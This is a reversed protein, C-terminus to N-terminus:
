EIITWADMNWLRSFTKPEFNEVNPQLAFMTNAVHLYLYPQEEFLIEQVRSYLEARVAQDCGPVTRAEELLQTLEENYYSTFNFGSGPVDTELTYFSTVDPNIPLGLSWALAAMDFTQGDLAPLLVSSFDVSQFDVEIGMEGMQADFFEGMQTATESGQGMLLDFQMPSGEYAPDVEQAYLCGQCIRPTAVDGDHDVWGAENLLEEARARDFAYLLDANYVWSTPITHTGVRTANGDLIGEVLTDMDFGHAIAQRVRVDGFIPHMGQDIREGNEDVGPQPNNPDALNFAFFSFGNASYEYIQFEDTRERMENQRVSPVAVFTLEGALFREFAVTTNPVSLLIYEEPSVYGLQTDPYSQDALLSVREGPAFEIDKFMGFSVTPIRRPDELMAAYNDGYLEDFVHAPVVTANNIDSFAICDPQSFTVVVTYDDPAQIDVIKGGSPTGDALTAFMDVRPSDIQGSRIANVAYMYDRSTIPTGDNWFADERLTITVQTGDENFEWGTALSGPLNPAELGTDYDIGIISPYLFSSVRGSTTDSSYLPNFTAPDSSANPEIIIGGEGPGLGEQASLPTVMVLVFSLISFMFFRPLLKM